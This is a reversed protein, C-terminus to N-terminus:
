FSVHSKLKLGMGPITRDLEVSGGSGYRFGGTFVKSEESVLLSGDLDSGGDALPALVATQTSNLNSGVMCGLWVKLGASKADTIARLAARYGGVKEMKINVGNVYPSLLPIDLHTRMSEDAYVDIGLANISEKVHVWQLLDDDEEDKKKGTVAIAAAARFVLDVPFPQEVMKIRQHYKPLLQESMQLSLSASWACNADISWWRCTSGEDDLVTSNSSSNSSCSSSSSNLSELIAACREADGDLKIKLHPTHEAGFVASTVMENIDSNLAATYFSCHQPNHSAIEQTGLILKAVSIGLQEALLTTVAVEIMSSAARAYPQSKLSSSDLVSLLTGFLRISEVETTPSCFRLNPYSFEPTHMLVQKMLTTLDVSSSSSSSCSSDKIHLDLQTVFDELFIQIDTLDAEYVFEKKPPLGVEAYVEVDGHQLRLLGNLRSTSTSHSTGFATRLKIEYAHLSIRFTSIGFTFSKDVLSAGISM